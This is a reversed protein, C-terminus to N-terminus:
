RGGIRQRTQQLVALKARLYAEETPYDGSQVVDVAKGWVYDLERMIPDEAVLANIKQQLGEATMDDM